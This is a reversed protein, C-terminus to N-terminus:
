DVRKNGHQVLNEKLFLSAM